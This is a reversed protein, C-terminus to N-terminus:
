KIFVWRIFVLSNKFICNHFVHKWLTKTNWFIWKYLFNYFLWFIFSLLFTKMFCSNPLRGGMNRCLTFQFLKDLVFLLHYCEKLSQYQYRMTITSIVYFVSKQWFVQKLSLLLIVTSFIEFSRCVNVSFLTKWNDCPTFFM